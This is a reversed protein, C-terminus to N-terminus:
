NLYKELINNIHNVYRHFGYESAMRLGEKGIEEILRKDKSGLNHMAEIQSRALQISLFPMKEDRAIMMEHTNQAEELVRFANPSKLIGLGSGIGELVQCVPELSTFEGDEILGMAREKVRLFEKKEQLNALSLAMTRNIRLCSNKDDKLFDYALELWPMADDYQKKIYYIDGINFYASGLLNKDDYEKAIDQVEKILPTTYGSMENPLGIEMYSGIQTLLLRALIKQLPERIRSSSIITERLQETIVYTRDIVLESVGRQQAKYLTDVHLKYSEILNKTLLEDIPSVGYILQYWKKTEEEDLQYCEAIAKACPFDKPIGAGLELRSIRSQDIGIMRAIQKQTLQLKITRRPRLVSLGFEKLYSYWNSRSDETKYGLSIKKTM